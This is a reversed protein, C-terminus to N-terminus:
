DLAQNPFNLKRGAELNRVMNDVGIEIFEALHFSFRGGSLGREHAGVISILTNTVREVDQASLPYDSYIQDGNDLYRKDRHAFFKDRRGRIAKIVHEHEVLADAQKRLVSEDLPKGEAWSIQRRNTLCFRIFKGISYGDEEFFKALTLHLDQELSKILLILLPEIKWLRDGLESHKGLFSQYMQLKCVLGDQDTGHLLQAYKSLRREYNEQTTENM